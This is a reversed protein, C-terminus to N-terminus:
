RPRMQACIFTMMPQTRPDPPTADCRLFAFLEPSQAIVSRVPDNGAYRRDVLMTAVVAPQGSDAGDILVVNAESLPIERGLITATTTEPSFDRSSSNLDITLTIEGYTMSHYATWRGFGGGGSGSASASGRRMFWGPSGRWLVLLDLLGTGDGADHSQWFAVVTPSVVRNAGASTQPIAPAACLLAAAMLVSVRFRARMPVLAEVRVGM